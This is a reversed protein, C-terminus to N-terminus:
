PNETIDQQEDLREELADIKASAQDKTLESDTSAGTEEALNKLYTRQAETMPKKGDDAGSPQEPLQM